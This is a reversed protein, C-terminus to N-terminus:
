CTGFLRVLQKTSVVLQFNIHGGALLVQEQRKEEYALSRRVHDFSNLNKMEVKTGLEKQGAPRISINTDVCQVKKWRLTQLVLLNFSRVYNKLTHTLKKQDEM